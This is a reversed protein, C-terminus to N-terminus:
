EVKKPEIVAKTIDLILADLKNNIQDIQNESVGNDAANNLVAQLATRMKYLEQMMAYYDPPPRNQPIRETVLQRMYSSCTLGTKSLRDQLMKLESDNLFFHIENNRSRM